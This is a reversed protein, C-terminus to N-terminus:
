AFHHNVWHHEDDVHLYRYQVLVTCYLVIVISLQNMYLIYVNSSHITNTSCYTSFQQRNNYDYM